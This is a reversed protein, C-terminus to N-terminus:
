YHLLNILFFNLLLHIFTKLLSINKKSLLLLFLINLLTIDITRIIPKINNSISLFFIRNSILLKILPFLPKFFRLKKTRINLSLLISLFKIFILIIRNLGIIFPIIIINSWHILYLSMFNIINFIFM